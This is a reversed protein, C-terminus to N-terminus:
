RTRFRRHKTNSGNYYRRYQINPIYDPILDYCSICMHTGIQSWEPLEEEQRVLYFGMKNECVWCLTKHKYNEM